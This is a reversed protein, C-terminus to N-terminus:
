VSRLSLSGLKLGKVKMLVRCPGPEGLETERESASAGLPPLYGGETRHLTIPVTSGLFCNATVEPRHSLLLNEGRGGWIGLM